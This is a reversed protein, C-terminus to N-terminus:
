CTPILRKYFAPYGKMGEWTSIAVDDNRFQFWYSFWYYDNRQMYILTIIKWDKDDFSRLLELNKPQEEM